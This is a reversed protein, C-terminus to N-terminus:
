RLRATPKVSDTTVASYTLTLPGADVSQGETCSISRGGVSLSARGGETGAFAVHQGLVDVDSGSGNLTVSCTVGSCSTAASNSSCAVLPLGLLLAATVGARLRRSSPM